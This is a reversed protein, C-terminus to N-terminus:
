CTGDVINTATFYYMYKGLYNSPVSQKSDLLLDSVPVACMRVIQRIDGSYGSYSNGIAGIPRWKFNTSGTPKIWGSPLYKDTISRENVNIAWNDSMACSGRVIPDEQWSELNFAYYSKSGCNGATSQIDEPGTAGYNGNFNLKVWNYRYPKQAEFINGFKNRYEYSGACAGKAYDYDINYQTLKAFFCREEKAMCCLVYMIFNQKEIQRLTELRSSSQTLNNSGSSDKFTQYRINNVKQLYTDAGSISNDLLDTNDPYNPHIETFDFMMKWMEITDVYPFYGESGSYLFKNYTNAFGFDEGMTTASSKSNLGFLSNYYGWHGDCIVEDAGPVSGKIYGGKGDTGLLEINYKQGEDKYQYMLADMVNSSYDGDDSVYDLIKPTKRTYYYNKSIYQGRPDSSLYYIKRFEKNGQSKLNVSRTNSDYIAYRLAASTVSSSPDDEINTPFYKFYISGQWNTWFLFRPEPEHSSTGNPVATAYTSLYNLYQLINDSSSETKNETTNLPKYLVYNTTEDIYNVAIDDSNPNLITSSVLDVFDSIKYVHPYAVPMKDHLSSTQMYKYYNNSFNISIFNEDTDSAANTIHSLSTIEVV